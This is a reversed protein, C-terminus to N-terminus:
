RLLQNKQTKPCNGSKIVVSASGDGIELVHGFRDPRPVAEFCKDFIRQKETKRSNGINGRRQFWDGSPCDCEGNMVYPNQFVFVGDDLTIFEHGFTQLYPLMALVSVAICLLASNCDIRSALSIRSENVNVRHIRTDMPSAHLPLRDHVAHM